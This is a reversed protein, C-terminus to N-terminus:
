RAPTPPPVPRPRPGPRSTANWAPPDTTPRRSPSRPADPTSPARPSRSPITRTSPARPSRTSPEVSSTARAPPPESSTRPPFARPGGRPRPRRRGRARARARGGRRRPGRRRRRPTARTAVPGRGAPRPPPTARPHGGLTTAERAFRPRRAGRPVGRGRRRARRPLRRDRRSRRSTTRRPSRSPTSRADGRRGSLADTRRRPRPRRGPARWRDVRSSAARLTGDGAGDGRSSSDSRWWRRRVLVDRRTGGAIFRTRGAVGELAGRKLRPTTTSIDCASRVSPDDGATDRLRTANVPRFCLQRKKKLTINAADDECM